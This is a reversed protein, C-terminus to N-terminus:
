YFIVELLKEMMKKKIIVVGDRHKENSGSPLATDMLFDSIKVARAFFTKEM